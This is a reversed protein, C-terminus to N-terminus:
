VTNVTNHFHIPVTHSSMNDNRRSEIATLSRNQCWSSFGEERSVELKICKEFSDKLKGVAVTGEKKTLKLELERQRPPECSGGSLNESTILRM